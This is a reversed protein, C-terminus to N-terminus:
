SPSTCRPRARVLPAGSPGRAAARAPGPPRRGPGAAAARRHHRGPRLARGTRSPEPPRLRALATVPRLLAHSLSVAAPRAAHGRLDEGVVRRGARRPRHDLDPADPRAPRAAARRADAATMTFSRSVAQWGDLTPPAADPQDRLDPGDLRPGADDPAPPHGALGEHLDLVLGVGPKGNVNRTGKYTETSWLTGALRRDGATRQGPERQRRGPRSRPHQGLRGQGAVLPRPKPRPTQSVSATSPIQTSTGTATGRRARPRARARRELPGPPVRRSGGALLVLLALVGVASPRTRRPQQPTAIPVPGFTPTPEDAALAHVVVPIEATDEGADDAERQLLEELDVQMAECSPYRDDPDKALARQLIVDLRDPLDPQVAAASPVPARLHQEALEVFSAGSYPTKGTVCQYLMVGLRTCTPGSTSRSAPPRSPAIYEGTGLVRGAATLSPEELIRAIGFDTLKAVGDETLLVNHPKVDRHIVGQRHAYALADAVQACIALAEAPKLHGRAAIRARLDQGSVHEFVIFPRGDHEGRDIVTVIGPHALGALTRAEREFREVADASELRRAHLIKVAM